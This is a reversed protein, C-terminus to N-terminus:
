AARTQSLAQFMLEARLWDEPTDIDQVRWRPIPYASAGVEFPSQGCRWARVTGWYFQGTDHWRDELDQSRTRFHEPNLMQLKGDASVRSARQVPFGFRTVPMVFECRKLHELSQVIDLPVVFPATAYLCCIPRSESLTEGFAACLAHKIVSSTITHDDSLEPPRRFPVLAGCREALKAIDDCDTSVIIQEFCGAKQAAEISWQM